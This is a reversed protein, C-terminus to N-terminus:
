AADIGNPQVTADMGKPQVFTHKQTLLDTLQIMHVVMGQLCASCQGYETALTHQEPVGFVHFQVAKVVQVVARWLDPVANRRRVLLLHICKNGSSQICLVVLAFVEHSVLYHVRALLQQVDSVTPGAM